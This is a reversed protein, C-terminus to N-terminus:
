SAPATADRKRALFSCPRPVPRADTEVSVDWGRYHASLEDLSLSRDDLAISEVVHVGGALTASQLGGLVREREPSSLGDFAAPTCLVASLPAAPTWATLPAACGHVRDTLGATQAARIVRDVVDEQEDVATVDCGNAALYLACAELRDHSVLVHTDDAARIARVIPADAGLGWREPRRYEAQIRLRRTRWTRYTPLRLRRAIIRDVEAWLLLEDFACQEQARLAAVAEDGIRLIDGRPVACKYREIEADVFLEYEHKLSLPRRATM